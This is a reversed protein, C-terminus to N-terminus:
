HSDTCQNATVDAIVGVADPSSVASLDFEWAIVTQPPKFIALPRMPQARPVQLLADLLPRASSVHMRVSAVAGGLLAVRAALPLPM